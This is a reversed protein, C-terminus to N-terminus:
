NALRKYALKRTVGTDEAILEVPRGAVEGGLEDELYLGIGAEIGNGYVAFNGAFPLMIGIKIPGDSGSGDGEIPACGSLVSSTALTTATGGALKLFNRRNMSLKKSHM